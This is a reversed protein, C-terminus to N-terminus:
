KKGCEQYLEYLREGHREPDYRQAVRALAMQAKDVLKGCEEVIRTWRRVFRRFRRTMAM